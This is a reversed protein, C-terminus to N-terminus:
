RVRARAVPRATASLTMLGISKDFAISFALIRSSIMM